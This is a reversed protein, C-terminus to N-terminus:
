GDTMAPDSMLRGTGVTKTIVGDKNGSAILESKALQRVWNFVLDAVAGQGKFLKIM